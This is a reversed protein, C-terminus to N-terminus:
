VGFAFVMFHTHRLAATVCRGRWHELAQVRRSSPGLFPRVTANLTTLIYKKACYAYTNSSSTGGHGGSIDHQSIVLSRQDLLQDLAAALFIGTLNQALPQAHDLLTVSFVSISKRNQSFSGFFTNGIDVRPTELSKFGLLAQAMVQLANGSHVPCLAVDNSGNRSLILKVRLVKLSVIVAFVTAFVM